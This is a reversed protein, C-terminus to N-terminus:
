ANNEEASLPSDDTSPEPTELESEDALDSTEIEVADADVDSDTTNDVDSEDAEDKKEIDVADTDIDNEANMAGSDIVEGKDNVVGAIKNALHQNPLENETTM